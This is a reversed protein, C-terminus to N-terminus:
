RLRALLSVREDTWIDEPSILGGHGDRFDLGAQHFCARVLESCVYTRERFTMGGHLLRAPEHLAAIEEDNYPRGLEDAGFGILKKAAEDTVGAVRALVVLGDFPKDDQYDQLYKALPVLRVGAGEVSELLLVRELIPLPLVIAVHSWISGTVQRIMESVAYKGSAFLLDGARLRSRLEALDTIPMAQVQEIAVPAAM